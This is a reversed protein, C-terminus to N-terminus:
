SILFFILIAIAPKCIEIEKGDLNKLWSLSVNVLRYALQKEADSLKKVKVKKAPEQLLM